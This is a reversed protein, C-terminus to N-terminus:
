AAAQDLAAQLSQQYAMSTYTAGSITDVQASQAALVESRLQPAAYRSVESSHGGSPLQLTKVDTIKGAQLTVQVQVNGFPTQVTSGSLQGTYTGTVGTTGSGQTPAAAGSGQTAQAIGAGTVGSGAQDLAAQLSQQYAMSTYTAGSITDVQASQAQLVESRLQPAAYNSVQGSHGGRPLQLAQVDTIQGSQLTVQVQVNGFPTQVTSGSLQGTYTGKNGGNGGGQAPAPASLGAMEPTKFSLLLALAVTTLFTGV